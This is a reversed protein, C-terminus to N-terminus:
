GIQKRIKLHHKLRVAVELVDQSVDPRDSDTVQLYEVHWYVFVQLYGLLGINESALFYNHRHFLPTRFCLTDLFM